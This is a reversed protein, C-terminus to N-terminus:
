DAWIRSIKILSDAQSSIVQKNASEKINGGQYRPGTLFQKGDIKLKRQLFYEQCLGTERWPFRASFSRDTCRSEQESLWQKLWSRLTVEPVPLRAYQSLMYSLM